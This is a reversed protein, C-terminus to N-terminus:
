LVDQESIEGGTIVVGDTKDSNDMSYVRIKKCM